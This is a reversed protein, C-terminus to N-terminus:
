EKGCPVQHSEICGEKEYDSEAKSNLYPKLFDTLSDQLIFAVAKKEEM